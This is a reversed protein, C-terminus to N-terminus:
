GDVSEAFTEFIAIDFFLQADPHGLVNTLANGWSM